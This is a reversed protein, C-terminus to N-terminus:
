ISKKRKINLKKEYNDIKVKLNSIVAKQSKIEIDQDSFLYPSLIYSASVRRDPNPDMM